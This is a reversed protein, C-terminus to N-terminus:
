GYCPLRDQPGSTQHVPSPGAVRRWAIGDLGAGRACRPAPCDSTRIASLQYSIASLQYSIASLQYSIASLQYSIASLQYSIAALKVGMGVMRTAWLGSESSANM